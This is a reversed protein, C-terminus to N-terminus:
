KWETPTLAITVGTTQMGVEGETDIQMEVKIGTSDAKVVIVEDGHTTEGGVVAGIEEKKEDGATAGDEIASTGGTPTM